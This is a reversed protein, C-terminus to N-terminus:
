AYSSMMSALESEFCKVASVGADTVSFHKKARGGRRPTAEGLWSTVLRKTQLRDLTTYLAGVTPVRSKRSAIENQISTGYAGDGVHIIAALVTYELPGIDMIKIRGIYCKLYLINYRSTWTLRWVCLPGASLASSASFFAADSV